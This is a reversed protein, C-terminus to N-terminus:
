DSSALTICDLTIIQNSMMNSINKPGLIILETKDSNLLQFNSTMMFLYLHSDDVCHRYQMPSAYGKTYSSSDGNVHCIYNLGHPATGKIGVVHQLRGLLLKRDVNIFASTLLVLVAVLGSDAAM